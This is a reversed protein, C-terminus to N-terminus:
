KKGGKLLEKFQKEWITYKQKHKKHSVYNSEEDNKYWLQLEWQYNFNDIKFYIHTAKYDLKDSKICKLTPYKESIHKYITNFDFKNETIIRMGFIDNFCKNIPISGPTGNINKKTEYSFLKYLISNLQKVRTHSIIEEQSLKLLDLNVETNLYDAYDIVSLLINLSKDNNRVFIDKVETSSQNFVDKPYKESWKKCVVTYLNCIKEISKDILELEELAEM